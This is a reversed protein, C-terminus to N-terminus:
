SIFKRDYASKHLQKFIFFTKTMSYIHHPHTKDLLITLFLFHTSRINQYLIRRHSFKKYFNNFFYYRFEPTLNLVFGSKAFISHFRYLNNFSAIKLVSRNSKFKVTKEKFRFTNKIM